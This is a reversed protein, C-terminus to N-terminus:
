PLISFDFISRPSRSYLLNIARTGINLEGRRTGMDTERADGCHSNHAWVIAKSDPGRHKMTEFLTEAMHKDRINWGRAGGFYASRYYAEADKVLTANREADFFDDLGATEIYRLRNKMLDVLQAVIENECKSMGSPLCLMGYKEPKERWPMLAAYRKRAVVGASPDVRDLYTLVQHLSESLSYLDLGYFGVKKEQPCGDNIDRLLDIFDSVDTNRWM